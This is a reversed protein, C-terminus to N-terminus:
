RTMESNFRKLWIAWDEIQPKTICMNVKDMLKLNKQMEKFLEQQHEDILITVSTAKIELVSGLFKFVEMKDSM